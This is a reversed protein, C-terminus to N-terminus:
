PERSISGGPRITGTDCDCLILVATDPAQSLSFLRRSQMAPLSSQLCPIKGCGRSSITRPPLIPRWSGRCECLLFVWLTDTNVEWLGGPGCNGPQTCVEIIQLIAIEERPPYFNGFLCFLLGHVIDDADYKSIIKNDGLAEALIRPNEWLPQL